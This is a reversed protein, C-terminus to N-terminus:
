VPQIAARAAKLVTWALRKLTPERRLLAPHPLRWIPTTIGSVEVRLDDINSGVPVDQSFLLVADRPKSMVDKVVAGPLGVSDSQPALSADNARLLADRHALLALCVHQRQWAIARLMDDFMKADAAEFPYQAQELACAEVLILLPSHAKGLQVHQAGRFPMAVLPYDIFNPVSVPEVDVPLPSAASVALPAPKIETAPKATPKATPTAAPAVVPTPEVAIAQSAAQAVVTQRNVWPTIGMHNLCHLQRETYPM